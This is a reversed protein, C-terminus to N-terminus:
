RARPGKERLKRCKGWLAVATSTFVPAPLRAHISIGASKPANLHSKGGHPVQQLKGWGMIAKLRSPKTGKKGWKEPVVAAPVMGVARSQFRRPLVRWAEPPKPSKCSKQKKPSANLSHLAVLGGKAHHSEACFVGKGPFIGRTNTSGFKAPKLGAAWCQSSPIHHSWLM